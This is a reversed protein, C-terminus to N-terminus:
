EGIITHSRENIIPKPYYLFLKMTHKLWLRSIEMPENLGTYPEADEAFETEIRALSSLFWANIARNAILTQFDEDSVSNLNCWKFYLHFVKMEYAEKTIQLIEHTKM